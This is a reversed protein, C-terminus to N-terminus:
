PIPRLFPFNRLLVEEFQSLPLSQVGVNWFAIPVFVESGKLEAALCTESCMESERVLLVRCFTTIFDLMSVKTVASKPVKLERTKRSESQM